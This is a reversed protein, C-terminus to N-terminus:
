DLVIENKLWHRNTSAKTDFFTIRHRTSDLNINSKDALKPISIFLLLPPYSCLFTFVIIGTPTQWTQWYDKVPYKICLKLHSCVLMVLFLFVSGSAGGGVTTTLLYPLWEKHPIAWWARVAL